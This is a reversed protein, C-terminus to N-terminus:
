MVEQVTACSEEFGDMSGGPEDRIVPIVFSFAPGGETNSAFIRGGHEGVIMKCIALGLGSGSRDRGGGYSTYEEFIHALREPPIPAGNDSIDVRYANADASVRLRREVGGHRGAPGRRDWFCPYGKIEVTGGRPAFKCANDLNNVLVQV